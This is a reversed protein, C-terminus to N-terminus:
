QNLQSSDKSAAGKYWCCRSPLYSTNLLKGPCTGTSGLDPWLTVKVERPQEASLRHLPDTYHHHVGCTCGCVGFHSIRGSMTEALRFEDSCSGNHFLIKKQPRDRKVTLCPMLGPCAYWLWYNVASSSAEKGEPEAQWDTREKPEAAWLLYQKRVLIAWMWEM